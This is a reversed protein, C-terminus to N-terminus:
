KNGSIIKNKLFKHSKTLNLKEIPLNLFRSFKVLECVKKRKKSIKPSQEKTKMNKGKTKTTSHGHNKEM